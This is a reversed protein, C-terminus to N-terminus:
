FHGGGALSSGISSVKDRDLRVQLGSQHSQPLWPQASLKIKPRWSHHCRYCIFQILFCKLLETCSVAGLGLHSIRECIFPCLDFSHGCWPCLICTSRERGINLRLLSLIHDTVRFTTLIQPGRKRPSLLQALAPGKWRPPPATPCTPLLTNVKNKDGCAVSASQPQSFATERLWSKVSM